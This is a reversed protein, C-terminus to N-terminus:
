RYGMENLNASWLARKSTPSNVSFPLRVVAMEEVVMLAKRYVM